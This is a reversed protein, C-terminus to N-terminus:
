TRVRACLLLTVQAYRACKDDRGIKNPTQETMMDVSGDSNQIISKTSLDLCEQLSSKVNTDSEKVTAINDKETSPNKDSKRFNKLSLDFTGQATAPSVVLEFQVKMQDFTNGSHANDQESTTSDLEAHFTCTHGNECM